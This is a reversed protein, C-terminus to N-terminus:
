PEGGAQGLGGSLGASEPPQDSKGAASPSVVRTRHLYNEFLVSAVDRDSAPDTPWRALVDEVPLPDGEEWSQRLEELLERKVTRERLFDRAPEEPQAPDAASPRGLDTQLSDHM